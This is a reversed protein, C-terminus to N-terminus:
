IKNVYNNNNDIVKYYDSEPIDIDIKLDKIDLKNALADYIEDSNIVSKTIDDVTKGLDTTVM